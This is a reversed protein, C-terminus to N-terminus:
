RGRPASPQCAPKELMQPLQLGGTSARPGSSSAPLRPERWPVGWSTRIHKCPLSWNAPSGGHGKRGGSLQGAARRELHRGQRRCSSWDGRLPVLKETLALRSRCGRGGWQRSVRGRGPAPPPPNQSQDEPGPATLHPAQAERHQPSTRLTFPPSMMGLSEERQLLQPLWSPPVGRGAHPCGRAWSLSGESRPESDSDAGLVQEPDEARDGVGREPLM